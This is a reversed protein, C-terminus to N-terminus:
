EYFEFNSARTGFPRVLSGETSHHLSVFIVRQFEHRTGLFCSTVIRTLTTRKNMDRVLPPFLNYDVHRMSCLVACMCM